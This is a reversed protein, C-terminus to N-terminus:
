CIKNQHHKESIKIGRNCKIGFVDRFIQLFLSTKNRSDSRALCRSFIQVPNQVADSQGARKKKPAIATKGKM